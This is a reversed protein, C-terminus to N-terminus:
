ELDWQYSNRSFGGYLDTAKGAVDAKVGKRVGGWEVLFRSPLFPLERVVYDNIARMTQIQESRALSSQYTTVLRAAVPDEFGGRNGRWQPPTAARDALIDFVSKGTMNYGPFSSRFENDSNRAAPIMFEEVDFGVQRWHHAYISTEKDTGPSGWMSLRFSRGDSNHRLLGDGGATWGASQMIARARSPDYPFLRMGDRAGDEGGESYSPDNPAMISWGAQRPDGSAAESVEERDLAHLLAARVDRELLAREGVRDPSLQPELVRLSHPITHITGAGSAEWQAKWELGVDARMAVPPVVDIAGALVNSLLTTQSNFFRIVVTNLKPRGRFYEDNAALTIEVGPDFARVRFPGLHVYESTWYPINLIDAGSGAEQSRKYPAELIHRPMPWFAAPGLNVGRLTPARYYIVVTSPDPAEVAVMQRTVDDFDNPIGPRCCLDFSFVMDDATFPTGDHWKVGRRLSYAVRMRGDPLVSVTGDDVTPVREALRGIPTRSNVEMSILGDSHLEALEPGGGTPANTGQLGLGDIPVSIGITVVKTSSPGPATGAEPREQRASPGGCATTMCLALLVLASASPRFAATKM